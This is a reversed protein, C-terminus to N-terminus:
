SNEPPSWGYQEEGGTSLIHNLEVRLEESSAEIILTRAYSLPSNSKRVARAFKHAADEAAERTRHSSIKDARMLNILHFM